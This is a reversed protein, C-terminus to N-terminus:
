SSQFTILLCCFLFCNLKSSSKTTTLNKFWSIQDKDEIEEEAKQSKTASENDFEKEWKYERQYAPKPKPMHTTRTSRTVDSKSFSKKVPKEESKGYSAVMEDWLDNSQSSKKKGRTGLISVGIRSHNSFLLRINKLTLTM